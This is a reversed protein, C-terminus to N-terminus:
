PVSIPSSLSNNADNLEAFRNNDDVHAKITHNGSTIFFPTQNALIDVSAGAALNRIPVGYTKYVGDVYYGVGIWVGAPTAATGQNRITSTFYGNGYSLNTVIVDPLASSSNDVNIMVSSSTATNGSADRAVATLTHNGNSTGVTNWVINYPSTTIEAGLDSGDLKFQVGVVGVNDSANASVTVSTGSISAGDVPSSIAVSPPTTENSGVTITQSLQNNTTDSEAFRNVDNVYAKIVHTGNPVIYPVANALIDASQGPALNRVAAGYTKYVGDVYYGVGVWVGTPTAVGGQNKITSTFYGNNYSMSTVVLDPLTTNNVNVTVSTSTVSIGGTDRVKATLTHSGNSASTSDWNISYPASIDEGGLNAGDLLFQVGAIGEADTATASVLVSNGSVTANNAPATLAVTPATNVSGAITLNLTAGNIIQGTDATADDVVFVNWTGNPSTGNFVNLDASFATSSGPGPAPFNDASTDYNAPKYTGSTIQGTPIPTTASPDFTITGNNLSSNGGADSMLISKQGGPGVLIIDMDSAYTHTVGNLSVTLKSITGSLGTVNFSVPYPQATSNDRITISGPASFTQITSSSTSVNWTFSTNVNGGPHGDSVTITATTTTASSSVTGSILGTNSNINLGLPLGSASYTLIDAANADSANIQLNVGTNITTTQNGPNTITPPSNAAVQATTTMDRPRIRFGQTHAPMRVDDEGRPVHHFNVGYWLVADTITEGNVFSVLGSDVLDEGVRNQTLYFDNQTFNESARLQDTVSPEIEYSINRGDNNTQTTNRVRWFRGNALNNTTKTETTLPTIVM